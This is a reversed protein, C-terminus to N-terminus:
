CILDQENLGMILAIILPLTCYDCARIYPQNTAMMMIFLLGGGFSWSDLERQSRRRVVLIILHDGSSGIWAWYGVSLEM